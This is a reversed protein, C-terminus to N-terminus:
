GSSRLNVGGNLGGFDEVLVSPMGLSESNANKREFAVNANRSREPVAAPMLMEREAAKVLSAHSGAPLLTPNTICQVRTFRKETLSADVFRRRDTNGM